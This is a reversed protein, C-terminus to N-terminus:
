PKRDSPFTPLEIVGFAILIVCVPILAFLLSLMTCAAEYAPTLGNHRSASNYEARTAYIRLGWLVVALGLSLVCLAATQINDRTLAVGAFAAIMIVAGALMMMRGSALEAETPKNIQYSLSAEQTRQL